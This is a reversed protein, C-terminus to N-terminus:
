RRNFFFNFLATVLYTAQPSNQQQRAIRSNIVSNLEETATRLAAVRQQELQANQIEQRRREREQREQQAMQIAQQQMEEIEEQTRDNHPQERLCHTDVLFLNFGLILLIKKM